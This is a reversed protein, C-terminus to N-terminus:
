VLNPLQKLDPLAFSEKADESDILTRSYYKEYLLSNRLKQCDPQRYFEEFEQRRMGGTEQQMKKKQILAVHFSVLQIWFYNLTLHFNEKEIKQIMELIENVPRRENRPTTEESSDTTLLVYILRILIDHGWGPYANSQIAHLFQQDDLPARPQLRVHIPTKEQGTEGNGSTATSEGQLLSPLPRLDPLLVTTRAEPDLLMRKKSYYHLFMGGNALQPNMFLFTKFTNLPNKTAVIAYHVMHCWFYTMTEHFTTGRSTDSRKTRPSLEIFKKIASFIKEIAIRRQPSKTLYLWAIRLHTYHDWVDLSIDDLSQLFDDDPVDVRDLWELLLAEMRKAEKEEPSLEEDQKGQGQEEEAGQKGEGVLTKPQKLTENLWDLGEYLGDGSTAVCGVLHVRRPNEKARQSEIIESVGLLEWVESPTLANPLDQKNAFILLDSNQLEEEELLLRLGSDAYIDYKGGAPNPNKIRERDNSDM